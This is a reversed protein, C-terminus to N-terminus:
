KRKKLADAKGRDFRPESELAELIPLDGYKPHNHWSDWVFSNRMEEETMNSLPATYWIWSMQSFLLVGWTKPHEPNMRQFIGLNLDKHREPTVPPYNPDAHNDPFAGGETSLIPIPYPLYTRVQHSLLEVGLYCTNNKMLSDIREERTAHPMNRKPDFPYDLPHNSPGFHAGIAAGAFAEEIKDWKKFTKFVDDMWEGASRKTGDPEEQGGVSMAYFVPIGGAEDVPKRGRLWQECIRETLNGKEWEGQSWELSLNPENGIEFYHAGADVHKKVLRRLEETEQGPRPFHPAPRDMYIRVVPEVGQRRAAAVVEVKNAGCALVKFWTFGHRTRLKKFFADPDDPVWICNPNDHIGWGTDPAPPRPYDALAIWPKPPQAKGPKAERDASASESAQLAAGGFTLLICLLSTMASAHPFRSSSRM